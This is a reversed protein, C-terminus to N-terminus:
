SRFNERIEVIVENKISVIWPNMSRFDDQSNFIERFESFGINYNGTTMIGNVIKNNLEISVNQSLEFNKINVGDNVITGWPMDGVEHRITIFDIDIYNKDGKTYVAKIFGFAEENASTNTKIDSDVPAVQFRPDFNNISDYDVGGNYVATIKNSIYCIGTKSLEERPCAEDLFVFGNYVTGGVFIFLTLM